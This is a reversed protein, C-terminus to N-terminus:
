GLLRRKPMTLKRGKDLLANELERIRQQLSMRLGSGRGPQIVVADM